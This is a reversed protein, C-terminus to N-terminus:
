IPEEVHSIWSSPLAGDQPKRHAYADFQDVLLGMSSTDIDKM